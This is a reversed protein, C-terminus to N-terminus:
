QLMTKCSVRSPGQQSSHLNSTSGLIPKSLSKLQHQKNKGTAGQCASRKCSSSEPMEAAETIMTVERKGAVCPPEIYRDFLKFRVSRNYPHLNQNSKGQHHPSTPLRLIHCQQPKLPKLPGLPHITGATNDRRYTWGHSCCNRLCSYLTKKVMQQGLLISCARELSHLIQHPCNLGASMSPMSPSSANAM